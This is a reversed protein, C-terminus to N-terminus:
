RPIFLVSPDEGGAHRFCRVLDYFIDPLDTTVNLGMAKAVGAGIPFGHSWKGGIMEDSIACSGEHTYTGQLLDCATARGEEMIKRAEEALILFEDRITEQPKQQLLQLISPAPMGYLQTDIPGLTAQAGMVIQDAALAVRTGASMAYYPVFVTKRAPHAKIARAIQRGAFSNGGQTHLIIDLPRTPDNVVLASLVDELDAFNFQDNEMNEGHIVCIVRSGRVQEIRRILAEAREAALAPVQVGAHALWVSRPGSRTYQPFVAPTREAAAAVGSDLVGVPGEYRSRERYTKGRQEDREKNDDLYAVSSMEGESSRRCSRVLEYVDNPMTLSVNLGLEKAIPATIARDRSWKGSVLEDALKCVGKHDRVDDMLECTLRRAEDLMKKAIDASIVTEDEVREIPKGKIAQLVSSAPGAGVFPDVPSLAAHPSMVIEDAAFALFTTSGLAYYPVFVTTKGRHGKIARAIQQSARILGGASHLIIDLPKDKPAKRIATLTDELDIVDLWNRKSHERHIIAIVRSGRKAELRAIIERTSGTMTLAPTDLTSPIDRTDFKPMAETVFTAGAHKAFGDGAGFRKGWFRKPPTPLSRVPASQVVPPPAPPEPEPAPQIVPQPEPRPQSRPAARETYAERAAYNDRPTYNHRPQYAERPAPLMPLMRPPPERRESEYRRPEEYRPDPYHPEAYRPDEYRPEDYHREDYHQDEYRPEYRAVARSDSRYRPEAYRPEYRPEYYRPDYRPEAYRPDHRYEPPPPEAPRPERRLPAPSQEAAAAAGVANRADKDSFATQMVVTPQPTSSRPADHKAGGRRVAALALLVLSMAICAGALAYAPLAPGATEALGNWVRAIADAILSLVVWVDM